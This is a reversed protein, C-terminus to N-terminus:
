NDCGTVCVRDIQYWGGKPKTYHREENYLTEYRFENWLRHNNSFVTDPYFTVTQIKTKEETVIQVTNGHWALEFSANRVHLEKLSLDM